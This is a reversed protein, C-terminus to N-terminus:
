FIPCAMLMMFYVYAMKVITSWRGQRDYTASQGLERLTFFNGVVSVYKEPIVFCSVKLLLSLLRANCSEACTTTQCNHTVTDAKQQEELIAQQSQQMPQNHDIELFTEYPFYGIDLVLLKKNQSYCFM